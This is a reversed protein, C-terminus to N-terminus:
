TPIIAAMQLTIVHAPNSHEQSKLLMQFSFPTAIILARARPLLKIDRCIWYIPKTLKQQIRVRSIKSRNRLLNKAFYYRGLRLDDM